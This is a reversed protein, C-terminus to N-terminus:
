EGHMEMCKQPRVTKCIWGTRDIDLQIPSQESVRGDSHIWINKKDIWQEWYNMGCNEGGEDEEFYCPCENCLKPDNLKIEIKM